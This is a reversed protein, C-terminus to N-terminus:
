QSTNSYLDHVALMNFELNLEGLILNQYMDKLEEDRDMLKFLGRALKVQREFEVELPINKCEVRGLFRQFDAPDIITYQNPYQFTLYLSAMKTKHFHNTLLEKSKNIEDRIQDCHFLFRNVRMNLDKSEDFLDKFMVRVFEKQVEMMSIMATKASDSNGGWLRESVTSTFSRRFMNTLDLEDIDWNERFSKLNHYKFAFDNAKGQRKLTNKLHNISEQILAVKM